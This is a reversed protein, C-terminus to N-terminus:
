RKKGKLPSKAAQYLKDLLRGSIDRSGNVFRSVSYYNVGAEKALRYITWGKKQMAALIKEKLLYKDASASKEQTTMLGGTRYFM